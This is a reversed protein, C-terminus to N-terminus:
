VLEPVYRLLACLTITLVLMAELLYIKRSMNREWELHQRYIRKIIRNKM